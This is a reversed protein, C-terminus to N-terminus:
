KGAKKFFSHKAAEKAADEASLKDYRQLTAARKIGTLKMVISDPIGNKRANTIFSRRATHMSVMQWKEMYYDKRVGGETVTYLVKGKIGALQAVSKINENIKQESLAPPFGKWRRFINQVLPHVPISVREDTKENSLLFFDGHVMSKDLRTLDSARLGTYCGIIFWDRALAQENKFLKHKLMAALEKEDLAIDYTEEQMTKFAKELFIKNKHWGCEFGRELFQKWNKIHSGTSNLTWNKSHCYEIFLNYTQMSVDNFEISVKKTASFDLLTTLTHNYHKVTWTAYKSGKLNTLRGAKMEEIIFEAGEKFRMRRTVPRHQLVAEITSRVVAKTFKDGTISCNTRLTEIADYLRNIKLLLAKGKQDVKGNAFPKENISDWTNKNAKERTSYKLRGDWCTLMVFIFSDKDSSPKDLIFMRQPCIVSM